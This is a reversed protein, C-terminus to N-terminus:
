SSIQFKKETDSFCMFSFYIWKRVATLSVCQCEFEEVCVLPLTEVQPSSSNLYHFYFHLLCLSVASSSASFIRKSQNFGFILGEDSKKKRPETLILSKTRIRCVRYLLSISVSDISRIYGIAIHNSFSYIIFVCEVTSYSFVAAFDGSVSDSINSEYIHIKRLRASIMMVSVRKFHRLSASFIACVDNDLVASRQTRKLSTHLRIHTSRRM